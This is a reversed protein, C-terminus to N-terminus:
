WRIVRDKVRQCANLEIENKAAAAERRLKAREIADWAAPRAQDDNAENQAVQRAHLLYKGPAIHKFEFSGDDRVMTEFYRIVDDAAPVEAPILHVRLRSPAKSGEKAPVVRGNLSAAGEVIIIEVGSLRAGTKVAVSNRSAGVPKKAAGTAPQTLARIYWGDSPLNALIRYRGLPLNGLTFEGRGGPAVGYSNGHRDFFLTSARQDPEDRDVRVLIEEVSSNSSCTKPPDSSEVIVRGAISGHNLLKLEIGMVDAGKVSLRRPVASAPENGDREGSAVLEYEGDPAGFIVFECSGGISTSASTSAEIWGTALNKLGVGVYNFPKASATEGAVAGSVIHGREARHRIDVGSVEEGGRVIIEAATDRTVSPHYTPADRQVQATDSPWDDAGGISVVYVGPLLGNIRYIGRDDTMSGVFSGDNRQPATRGELDRLRRPTVAVGVIPEGTEDTIRGTIVGGRTLNITVSEGIRHIAHETSAGAVIFGPARPSLVYLGPALGTLKFDGYAGSITSHDSNRAGGIRSAHVEVDELAQGDAGIVRGTIVGESIVADSLTSGRLARVELGRVDAGNIEFAIKGSNHQGNEEWRDTSWLEYRGAPLRQFKFRGQDDAVSGISSGADQGDVRACVVGAEPAARGTEADIVRGSVEYVKEAAGLRIDIGTIEEGEKVEIVKAQKLDAANPYFVSAHRRRGFYYGQASLIYRGAPAGYIRYIGRDDPPTMRRSNFDYSELPDGNENLLFLELNAAIFPRGEYDTVRGTIAGGRVLAFDVNDRSEGEDLTVSKFLDRQLPSKAQAYAKSLARVQYAGKTLGTAQYRGAADTRVRVLAHHSSVHDSFHSSDPDVGMVIVMANAAPKGGVTVRGSISATRPRNNRQPTQASPQGAAVLLLISLTSILGPLRLKM